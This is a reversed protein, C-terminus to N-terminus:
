GLAEGVLRPVLTDERPLITRPDILLRDREIRGVLPPDGLRLRRAVEDVSIGEPPAVALLATALGEEPLSGGGIM